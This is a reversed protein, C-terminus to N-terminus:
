MSVITMVSTVVGSMLMRQNRSLAPMFRESAYRTLPSDITAKQNRPRMQM